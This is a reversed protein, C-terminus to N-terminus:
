CFSGLFLFRCPLVDQRNNKKSIKTQANFNKIKAEIKAESLIQFLNKKM